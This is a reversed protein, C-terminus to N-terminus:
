WFKWWPTRKAGLDEINSEIWEGTAVRVWKKPVSEIRLETGPAHDVIELLDPAFWFAEDHNGFFVNIAYDQHNEGIVEVRTLSPTTEGYVQGVFGAFGLKTTLPSSVVRVSDGFSIQSDTSM